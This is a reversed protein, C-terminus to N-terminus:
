NRVRDTWSIVMRRWFWMEFCVMYKQDIKRLTCTEAGCFAVSWTYCKMLKKRLIWDLKSTFLNKKKNFATKVMVIRSKIKHKGTADNSIVSDMYNLYEM